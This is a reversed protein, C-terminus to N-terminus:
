RKRVGLVALGALLVVGSFQAGYKLVDKIFAKNESDKIYIQQAIEIMKESYYKREDESLNERKFVEGFDKLMSQYAKITQDNSSNNAGLAKESLKYLQSAMNGAMKAYDPFQEMAKLALERDMKPILSIFDGIKESSFESFSSINLANKVENLNM